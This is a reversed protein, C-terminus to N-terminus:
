GYAGSARVSPATSHYVNYMFITQSAMLLPNRIYVCSFIFLVHTPLIFVQALACVWAGKKACTEHLTWRSNCFRIPQVYYTSTIPHQLSWRGMVCISTIHAVSTNRADKGCHRDRSGIPQVSLLYIQNTYIHKHTCSSLSWNEMVIQGVSLLHM